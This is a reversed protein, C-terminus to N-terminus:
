VLVPEDGAHGAALFNRFTASLQQPASYAPWPWRGTSEGTRADLRELVYHSVGLPHKPDSNGVYFIEDVGDGDLDFPMIPCFWMGPVVGPGLDRRWIVKGQLDFLVLKLTDSPFFFMEVYPDVDFDASYAALVAHPGGAGLSVPVARLQGIPSGLDLTFATTLKM